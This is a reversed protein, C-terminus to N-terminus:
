AIAAPVSVRVRVDPRVRLAGLFARYPRIGFDPQHLDVEAVLREGARRAELRVPRTVGALTLEGEVDYGDAVATVRTSAFRVEPFRSARLVEGAAAAEITRVDDASLAGPLPRGDRLATVVRLSAPALRASVSAGPEISIELSGVRMLLDHGVASLVGQRFVLVECSAEGPGLIRV